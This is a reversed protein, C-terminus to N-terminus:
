SGAGRTPAPPLAPALLSIENPASMNLNSEAWGKLHVRGSFAERELLLQRWKLNLEDRKDYATQLDTFTARNEHRVWVICVATAFCAAIAIFGLMRSM